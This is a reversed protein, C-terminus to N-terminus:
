ATELTLYSPADEETVALSFVSASFYEKSESIQEGITPHDPFEFFPFDITILTRTLETHWLLDLRSVCLFPLSLRDLCLSVCCVSQSVKRASSFLDHLVFVSSFFNSFLRKM